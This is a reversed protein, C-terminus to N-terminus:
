TKSVDCALLSIAGFLTGRGFRIRGVADRGVDRCDQLVVDTSRRCFIELIRGYDQHYEGLLLGDHRFREKYIFPMQASYGVRGAFCAPYTVFWGRADKNRRIVLYVTM